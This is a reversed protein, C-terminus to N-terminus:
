SSFDDDLVCSSDSTEDPPNMMWERLYKKNTLSLPTTGKENAQNIDAGYQILKLIVYENNYLVAIHLPTNGHKDSKIVAGELFMQDMINNIDFLQTHRALMHLATEEKEGVCDNINVINSKIVNFIESFGYGFFPRTLACHIPSEGINNRIGMDAGSEILKEIVALNYQENKIAINIPTENKNNTANIDAGSEILWFIIDNGVNLKVAKYLLSEGKMKDKINLDVSDVLSSLFKLLKLSRTCVAFQLPTTNDLASSEYLSNKHKNVVLKIVDFDQESAKMLSIILCSFYMSNHTEIDDLLTTDKRIMEALKNIEKKYVVDMFERYNDSYINKYIVPQHLTKSGKEPALDICEEESNDDSNLSYGEDCDSSVPTSVTTDPLTKQPSPPDELPMDETQVYDTDNADCTGISTGTRVNNKNTQTSEPSSENVVKVIVRKELKIGFWTNKYKSNNKLFSEIDSSCVKYCGIMSSFFAVVVNAIKVCCSSKSNKHWAYFCSERVNLIHIKSDM